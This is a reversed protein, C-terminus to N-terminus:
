LIPVPLLKGYLIVYKFNSFILPQSSAQKVVTAAPWDIDTGHKTVERGRNLIKRTAGPTSWFKQHAVRTLNKKIRQSLITCKPRLKTQSDYM